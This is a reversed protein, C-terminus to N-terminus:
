TLGSRTVHKRFRFRALTKAGWAFAVVGVAIWNLLNTISPNYHSGYNPFLSWSVNDATHYLNAAFVSRNANNYIWVIMVRMAVTKLSQWMVWSAPNGTQVFTPVHWLAWIGGLILGSKLAGWRNQMPDLAYGSWGLEEGADGLFYLMFFIPVEELPIEVREPLPMGTLRMVAYSGLYLAPPLVLAPLIWVKRKIRRYDVAKKLLAKVGAIGSKRYVLISAATVPVVTVLAGAPLNIPLPLKSGGFLWFPVALAFVLAFYDLPLKEQSAHSNM